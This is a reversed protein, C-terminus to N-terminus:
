SLRLALAAVSHNPVDLLVHAGDIRVSLQSPRVVDPKDFTNRARMDAHTLVTRRGEVPRTGGAVRIRTAIPADVSPNTPTVTM